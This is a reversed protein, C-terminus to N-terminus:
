LIRNPANELLKMVEEYYPKSNKNPKIDWGRDYNIICSALFDSKEERVKQDWISLKSVRGEDIGYESGVDFLKAQFTYKGVTGECWNTNSEFETFIAEINEKM